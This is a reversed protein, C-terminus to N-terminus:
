REDDADRYSFWLLAAALTEGLAFPLGMALPSFAHPGRAFALCGLGTALYWGASVRM